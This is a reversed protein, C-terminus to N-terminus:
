GFSRMAGAPRTGPLHFPPSLRVDSAPLRAEHRPETALLRSFENRVVAYCECTHRDWPAVSLFLWWVAFILSLIVLYKRHPILVRDSYGL